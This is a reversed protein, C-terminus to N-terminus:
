LKGWESTRLLIVAGLQMIKELLKMERNKWGYKTGHNENKTQRLFNKRICRVFQCGSGHRKVIKLRM